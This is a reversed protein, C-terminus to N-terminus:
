YDGGLAVHLNIRNQLRQNQINILQSRAEFSRRQTDLVSIIDVLGREYLNLSQAEALQSENAAIRTQSELERLDSEARLASEVERFAQLVTSKYQALQSLQNANFQDRQAKLRGSQFLAMSLDAAISWVNFDKELLESFENSLTGDSGTLVLSPLWNRNAAKELSLAALLRNQEALVDPRNELLESPIGARPTDLLEPLQNTAEIEASPYRGLLVELNRIATDMQNRRQIAAAKSFAVQSRTLRLDFADVIGREYRRELSDLNSSYSKASAVALEYLRNAAIVNFWAKAIQGSLSLKLAEFEYNSAQYQAESARYENGLRNWVDIEWQANLNLSFRDGEVPIMPDFTAITRSSGARFGAGISPLRQSNTIRAAAEAARVRQRAAELGFNNLEAEEVLAILVPSNLEEIWNTSERSGQAENWGVPTLEAAPNTADGENQSSCGAILYLIASLSILQFTKLSM